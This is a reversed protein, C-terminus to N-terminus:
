YGRVEKRIQKMYDQMQEETEFGAKAAEGEFADAVEQFATILANQIYLKGDEEILEVKDGTKLKLRNRIAAPITIQGKESVRAIARNM